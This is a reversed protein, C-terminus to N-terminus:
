RTKRTVMRWHVVFRRWRRKKPCKSTERGRFLLLNRVKPPNQSKLRPFRASISTSSIGLALGSLISIGRISNDSLERVGHSRLRYELRTVDLNDPLELYEAFPRQGANNTFRHKGKDLIDLKKDYAVLERAVRSTSNTFRYWTPSGHVSVGKTPTLESVTVTDKIISDRFAQVNVGLLDICYDVRRVLGQRYVDLGLFECFIPFMSAYSTWFWGYFDISREVVQLGQVTRVKSTLALVPHNKQDTVHVVKLGPRNEKLVAFFLGLSINPFTPLTPIILSVLSYKPRKRISLFSRQSITWPSRSFKSKQPM